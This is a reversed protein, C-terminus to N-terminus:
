VIAGAVGGVLIEGADPTLAGAIMKVVTSKGAGNDGVLASVEGGRLSFSVSEVAKLAGYSKSLERVELVPHRPIPWVRGDQM